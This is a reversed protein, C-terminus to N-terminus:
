SSGPAPPTDGRAAALLNEVRYASESQAKQLAAVIAYPGSIKEAVNPLEREPQGEDSGPAMNAQTAADVAAALLVLRLMQDFAEKNYWLVNQFRNVQLFTRVDQDKLWAEIVRYAPEPEAAYAMLCGQQSILANVLLLGRSANAEDAGLEQLTGVIIKRLLWEDVWSRSQEAFDTSTVLKGLSHTFLWSLLVGWTWEDSHPIPIASQPINGQNTKIGCESNGM